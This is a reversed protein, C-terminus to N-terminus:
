TSPQIPPQCMRLSASAQYLANSRAPLARRDPNSRRYSAILDITSIPAAVYFPVNNEKALVAMGYTGIKNATDGNAAIRDAGVVVAGVEGTRLFHGVM